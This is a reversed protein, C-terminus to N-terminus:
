ANDITMASGSPKPRTLGFAYIVCALLLVELASFIAFFEPWGIGDLGGTDFFYRRVSLLQVPKGDLRGSLLFEYCGYRGESIEGGHVGLFVLPSGDAGDAEIAIGKIDGANVFGSEGSVISDSSQLVQYLDKTRRLETPNPNDPLRKRERLGVLVRTFRRQFTDLQEATSAQKVSAYPGFLVAVDGNRSAQTRLYSVTRVLRAELIRRDPPPPSLYYGWMANSLLISLLFPVLLAACILGFTALKPPRGDRRPMSSVVMTMLLAAPILGIMGRNIGLGLLVALVAIVSMCRRLTLRPLRM